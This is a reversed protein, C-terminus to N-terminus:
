EIFSGLEEIRAYLKENEGFAKRTYQPILEDIKRDLGQFM